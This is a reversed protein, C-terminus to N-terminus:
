GSEIVVSAETGCYYAVVAEFLKATDKSAQVSKQKMDTFASTMPYPLLNMLPAILCAILTALMVNVATGSSSITFNESFKLTSKPDIFALMFGIDTSLAFMKMGIGCKSWLILWLFILMNARAVSMPKM